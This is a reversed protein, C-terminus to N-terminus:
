IFFEPYKELAEARYEEKIDEMIMDKIYAPTGQENYLAVIEDLTPRVDDEM